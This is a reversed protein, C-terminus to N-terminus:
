YDFWSNQAKAKQWTEAIFTSFAKSLEPCRHRALTAVEKRLKKPVETLNELKPGIVNSNRYGISFGQVSVKNNCVTMIARRNATGWYRCAITIEKEM